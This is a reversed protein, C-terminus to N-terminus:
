QKMWETNGYQGLVSNASFYIVGDRITGRISSGDAADLTIQEGRIEYTGRESFGWMTWYYRGGRELELTDSSNAQSVYRGAVGQGGGCGLLLAVLVTSLVAPQVIRRM